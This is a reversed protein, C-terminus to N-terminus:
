HQQQRSFLNSPTPAHNSQEVTGKYLWQIKQHTPLKVFEEWIANRTLLKPKLEQLTTINNVRLFSLIEEEAKSKYKPITVLGHDALIRRITFASTGYHQAITAISLEEEQYFHLVTKIIEPSQMYHLTM